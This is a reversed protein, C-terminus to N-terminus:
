THIHAHIYADWVFMCVVCARVQKIQHLRMCVNAANFFALPSKPDMKMAAQWICVNYSLALLSPLFSPLFSSPHSFLCMVHQTLVCLTTSCPLGPTMWTSRYWEEITSCNHMAKLRSCLPMLCVYEHLTGLSTVACSSSLFIILFFCGVEIAKTLDVFAGAYNQMQLFHSTIHHSTIHHSTINHSALLTSGSLAFLAICSRLFHLLHTYRCASLPVHM